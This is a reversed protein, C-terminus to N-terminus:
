PHDMWRCCWTAPNFAPTPRRAAQMKSSCDVRCAASAATGDRVWDVGYGDQRLATQVGDAIMRDDEVLLVGM